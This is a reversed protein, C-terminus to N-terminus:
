QEGEQPLLCTVFIGLGEDSLPQRGMRQRRRLRVAGRHRSLVLALAAGVSRNRRWLTACSANSRTAAPDFNGLWDLATRQYHTGSWRWEKEVEFLDPFHRILEHSPMVGGTFFHQAIWDEGDAHDFRYAGTRHTFIHMFFRGDPEPWIAGPGDARALEVHARVNSRFSATSSDSAPRVREHGAHHRSSKDIGAGEGRERYLARQSTRIRYRPSRSQSIAGGHLAVAFGLRLGAGSDVPRRCIPMNSPRGCRKKRPRRCRSKPQKYFCISYKRNPGLVHRLIGGAGRLAPRQGDDTYEAIARAAMEDAFSADSEANGGALRAATRSCLRQIAARVVVDPLPVREATGIM